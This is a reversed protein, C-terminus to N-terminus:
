ATPVNWDVQLSSNLARLAPSLGSICLTPRRAASTNLHTLTSWAHALALLGRMDTAAAATAVTVVLLLALTGGTSETDSGLHATVAPVLSVAGHILLFSPTKTGKPVGDFELVALGVVHRTGSHTADDADNGLHTNRCGWDNVISQSNQLMSALISCTNHGTVSLLQELTFGVAQNAIYELLAVHFSQCSVHAYTM